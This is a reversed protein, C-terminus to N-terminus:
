QTTTAITPLRPTNVGVSSVLLEQLLNVILYAYMTTHLLVARDLALVIPPEFGGRRSCGCRWSHTDSLFSLGDSGNVVTKRSM